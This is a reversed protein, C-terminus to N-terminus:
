IMSSHATTACFICYFNFIILKKQQVPNSFPLEAMKLGDGFFTPFKKCSKTKDQRIRLDELVLVGLHKVAALDEKAL